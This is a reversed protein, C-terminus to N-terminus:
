HALLHRCAHLAQPGQWVLAVQPALVHASGLGQWAARAPWRAMGDHVQPAQAALRAAFAAAEVRDVVQVLRPLDHEQKGIGSGPLPVGQLARGAGRVVRGGLGHLAAPALPGPIEVVAVLHHLQQCAPRVDTGVQVLLGAIWCVRVGCGAVLHPLARGLRDGEEGALSVVVPQWRAM